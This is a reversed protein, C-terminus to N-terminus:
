DLYRSPLRNLCNEDLAQEVFTHCNPYGPYRWGGQYSNAFARIGDRIYEETVCKCLMGKAKGHRIIRPTFIAPALNTFYVRPHYQSDPKDGHHPDTNLKNDDKFIGVGNLVGNLIGGVGKVTEIIGSLKKEPWWGYSEKGM